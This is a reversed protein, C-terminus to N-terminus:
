HKLRAFIVVHQGRVNLDLRVVPEDERGQIANDHEVRSMEVRGDRLVRLPQDLVYRTTRDRYLLMVSEIEGDLLVEPTLSPADSIPIVWWALYALVPISLCIGAVGIHRRKPIMVIGDVEITV